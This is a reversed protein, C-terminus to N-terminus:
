YNRISSKDETQFVSKLTNKEIKRVGIYALNWKQKRILIIGIAISVAVVFAHTLLYLANNYTTEIGLINIVVFWATLSAAIILVFIFASLLPRKIFL